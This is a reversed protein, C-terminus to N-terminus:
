NRNVFTVSVRDEDSRILVSVLLTYKDEEISGSYYDPVINWEDRKWNNENLTNVIEEYVEKKTFSGAPEYEIRLEAYVPKGLAEGKDQV